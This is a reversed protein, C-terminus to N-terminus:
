IESGEPKGASDGDVTYMPAGFVRLIPAPFTHEADFVERLMRAMDAILFKRAPKDEEAEPLQSGVIRAALDFITKAATHIEAHLGPREEQAKTMAQWRFLSALLGIIVKDKRYITEEGARGAQFAAELDYSGMNCAAIALHDLAPSPPDQVGTEWRSITIGAVHLIAGFDVQSFNPKGEADVGEIRKRLEFVLDKWKGTPKRPKRLRIAKQATM